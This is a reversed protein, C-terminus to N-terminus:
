DYSVEVGTIVIPAARDLQAGLSNGGHFIANFSHNENPANGGSNVSFITSGNYKLNANDSFSTMLVTVDWYYGSPINVSEGSSLRVFVEQSADFGGGISDRVQRLTEDSAPRATNGDADKIEDITTNTDLGM